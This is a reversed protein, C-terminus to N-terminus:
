RDKSTRMYEQTEKIVRSVAASQKILLVILYVAYCALVVQTIRAMVILVQLVDGLM